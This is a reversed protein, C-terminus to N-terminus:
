AATVVLREYGPILVRRAPKRAVIRVGGLDLIMGLVADIEAKALPMGLCFHPGAGFWLQRLEKPHPRDPDFPGYARACSITAIVIRDGPRVSVSGVRAPRAVSRLMVPTPVTVRFAEAIVTDTRTRDDVLRALWGTDHCLAILRPLYSVITETGTLIFAAVAGLAEAESLGLGRMAGPVTAPDADRFAAAAPATLTSLTARARAIQRPTLRPRGLRVMSTLETGRAYVEAFFRQENSRVAIKAPIPVGVLECIVAGALQQVAAALDVPGARLREALGSLPAAFVKACLANVYRPVFLPALKERLRAHASGEMNLLVSPGLVPTWLDSPSGPGTKTFSEPDTLVERALAADSVVVGIRPVRVAPGLRGVGRVLPFAIPHAALQIRREWDTM